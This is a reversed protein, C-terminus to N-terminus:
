WLYMVIIDLERDLERFSPWPAFQQVLIKIRKMEIEQHLM